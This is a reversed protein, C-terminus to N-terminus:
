GLGVVDVPTSADDTSGDGLQGYDNHGWCRAAGASTIACSHATGTAIATFGDGGAVAIPVASHATTGDGLQGYDNAGWCLTSTGTLACTHDFFSAIATVGAGLGTVAVPIAFAVDDLAADNGLQGYNSYGWCRVGGADTLACAHLRGVAIASASASPLGESGTDGTNDDSGSSDDALTDTGDTPGSESADDGVSSAGAENSDASTDDEGSAPGESASASGEPPTSDIVSGDPDTM